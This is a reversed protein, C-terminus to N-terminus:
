GGLASDQVVSAVQPKASNIAVELCRRTEASMFRSGVAPKDAQCVKRAAAVIRKELKAQGAKPNLNLDSYSVTAQPLKAGAVAPVAIMM